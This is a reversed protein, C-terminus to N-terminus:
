TSAMWPVNWRLRFERELEKWAEPTTPCTLHEALFEDIIARCVPVVFKSVKGSRFQYHLSTYTERTALYRLTTAIKLGVSLPEGLNTTQKTLRPALREKLMEFFEPTMCIFNRFGPIDTEYLEQMITTYAGRDDRQLIWPKVWM